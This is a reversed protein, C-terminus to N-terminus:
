QVRVQRSQPHERSPETAPDLKLGDPLAGQALSWKGPPIGGLTKFHQMYFVGVRGPTLDWPIGPRPDTISLATCGDSELDVSLNTRLGSLDMAAKLDANDGKAKYTNEAPIKDLTLQPPDGQAIRSIAQSWYALVGQGNAASGLGNRFEV